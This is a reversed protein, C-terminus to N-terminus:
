KEKVEAVTGSKPTTKAETVAGSKHTCVGTYVKGEAVKGDKAVCNGTKAAVDTKVTGETTLSVTSVNGANEDSKVMDATTKAKSCCTGKAKVDQANSLNVSALSLGVMFFVAYFLRKM